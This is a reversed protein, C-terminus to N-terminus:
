SNCYLVFIYWWNILTKLCSNKVNEDTVLEREQLKMVTGEKGVTFPGHEIEDIM